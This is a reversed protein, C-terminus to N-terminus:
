QQIQVGSLHAIWKMPNISPSNGLIRLNSGALSLTVSYGVDTFKMINNQYIISAGSINRIVIYDFISASKGSVFDFGFTKITLFVVYGDPINFPISDGDLTLYASGGFPANAFATLDILQVDGERNIFGSAKAIEGYRLTIAGSGGLISSLEACTKNYSGGVISSSIGEIINRCGGGVFSFDCYNYNGGGSVISSYSGTVCSGSSSIITSHNGTVCNNAGNGIFSYNGGIYNGCGNGIFSKEGQANNCSGNGVFSFLNSSTNCQGGIIVSDNASASNCYGNIVSSFGGGGYNYEGGGIFSTAQSTNCYGGVVISNTGCSSNFEGGGIFSNNGIANNSNLKPQIGSNNANYEFPSTDGSAIYNSLPETNGQVDKLSIVGSVGDIYVALSNGNPSLINQAQSKTVNGM